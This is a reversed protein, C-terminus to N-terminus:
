KILHYSMMCKLYKDIDNMSNLQNEEYFKRYWNITMEVTGDIGLVSHWQLKERAKASDLKLLNAEHVQSSNPQYEWIIQDWKQHFLSLLAEVTICQEYDPGFNWADAYDVQEELLKKGLLLYGSLPELVHQWPRVSHINRIIVKEKKISAKIVDPILRDAAWDGGGIVNGARATALLIQHSKKYESLNLFSNKYSSSLIESCAKSSSYIDYGGLRDSEKYAIDQELNEYVKDTTVNIIAKVSECNRAAEFVNLTGLVNTAYTNVPNKYSERVLSQAALHFIIEPKNENICKQLSKLDLINGMISKMELNLLKLHAPETPFDISYGIVKAGMKILWLCLWSGKFGTHGTVLVTKGKYIQNLATEM